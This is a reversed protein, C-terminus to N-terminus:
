RLCVHERNAKRLVFAEVSRSKSKKQGLCLIPTEVGPNKHPSYLSSCQSLIVVRVTKAAEAPIQNLQRQPAPHSGMIPRSERPKRPWDDDLWTRRDNNRKYMDTSLLDSSSLSRLFVTSLLWGRITLPVGNEGYGMYTRYDQLITPIYAVLAILIACSSFFAKRHDDAYCTLSEFLQYLREVVPEFM